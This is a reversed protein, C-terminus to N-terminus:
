QLRKSIIINQLLIFPFDWNYTLYTSMPAIYNIPSKSAVSFELFKTDKLMDYYIRTTRNINGMGGSSTVILLQPNDDFQNISITFGARDQSTITAWPIIFKYGSRGDESFPEPASVSQDGFLPSYRLEYQIYDTLDDFFIRADDDTVTNNLTKIGEDLVYRGVYFHIYSLGSESMGQAASIDRHSRAMNVNMNGM